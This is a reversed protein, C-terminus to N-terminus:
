KCASGEIVMAASYVPIPKIEGARAAALGEKLYIRSRGQADPKPPVNDVDKRWIRVVAQQSPCAASPVRILDNLIWGNTVSAKAKLADVLRARPQCRESSRVAAFTYPTAADGGFRGELRACAEPITRLTHVVGVAQPRSPARRIEPSPEAAVAAVTSLSAALLVASLMHLRLM